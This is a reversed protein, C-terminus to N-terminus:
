RRFRLGAIRAEPADAIGLPTLSRIPAGKDAHLTFSPYAIPAPATEPSAAAGQVPGPMAVTGPQLGIQECYMEARVRRVKDAELPLRTLKVIGLNQFKLAFYVQQTTSRYELTGHKETESGNNGKIVFDDLWARFTVADSDALTVALNPVDLRTPQSGYGRLDSLDEGAVLRVTLPDIAQVRTCDLGDIRLAFNAPVWKKQRGDTTGPGSVPKQGEVWQTYEPRLKVTLFAPDKSGADLGPFTIESVLANYFNMREQESFSDGGVVAGNKPSINRNLTDGLLAYLGKWMSPGCTITIDEYKVGALHKHAVGDPGVKESVVDASAGGGDATEVTGADLGDLELRFQELAYARQPAMAMTVEQQTGILYLFVAHESGDALRSTVVRRPEWGSIPFDLSVVRAGPRLQAELLPRLLDNVAPLQYLTVVTAPTLDVNLFDGHLIRARPVLRRELLRAASLAVLDEDIEVGTAQAGFSGAAAIVIDGSGSGLDYVSDCRTTGALTLMTGIMPQPSPVFPALSVGRM